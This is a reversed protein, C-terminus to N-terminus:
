WNEALEARQVMWQVCLNFAPALVAGTIEFQEYQKSGRFLSASNTYYFAFLPLLVLPVRGGTLSKWVIDGFQNLHGLVCRCKPRQLSAPCPCVPHLKPTTAVM